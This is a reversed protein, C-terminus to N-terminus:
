QGAGLNRGGTAFFSVCDGQNKFTNGATDVFTEWGGKKCSDKDAAVLRVNDIVPGWWSNGASLSTFALLTTSGTAQFLYAHHDYKMNAHTNGEAATDYSFDAAAAGTASLRLRKVPSWGTPFPAYPDPNGSMDFRVVYFEGAVTTVTQEIAGPWNGDLDISHHGDSAQWGNPGDSYIDVSKGAPVHWGVVFSSSGAVSWWWDAPGNNAEFSGNTIGTVALVATALLLWGAVGLPGLAVIRKMWHAGWQQEDDTAM